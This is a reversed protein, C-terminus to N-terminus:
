VNKQYKKKYFAFAMSSIDQRLQWIIDKENPQSEELHDVLTAASATDSLTKCNSVYKSILSLEEVKSSPSTFQSM